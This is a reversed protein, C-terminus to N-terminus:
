LGVKTIDVKAESFFLTDMENASLNLNYESFAETVLINVDNSSKASSGDNLKKSIDYSLMYKITDHEGITALYFDKFHEKNIIYFYSIKYEVGESKDKVNITDSQYPKFIGATQFYPIKFNLGAQLLKSDSISGNTFTYALHGEPVLFMSNFSIILIFLPLLLYNFFYKKM